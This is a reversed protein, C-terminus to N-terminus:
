RRGLVAGPADADSPGDHIMRATLKQAQCCASGNEGGQRAEGPPLGIRRARHAKDDTAHGAARGVHERAQDPLPERLPEALWEDDVIARARTAVEGHFRDRTGGPRVCM